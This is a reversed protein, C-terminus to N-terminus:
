KELDRLYSFILRYSKPPKNFKQEKKANRILQNIHQRDVDPHETAITDLITKDDALLADRWGELKHLLRKEQHSNDKIADIKQRIQDLKEGALLKRIHKLQRNLASRQLKQATLVAEHCTPALALKEIQADTLSVIIRGLEEIAQQERKLESKSPGYDIDDEDHYNQDLENM